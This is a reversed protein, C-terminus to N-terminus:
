SPGPPLLEDIGVGGAEDEVGGAVRDFVAVVFSCQPESGGVGQAARQPCPGAVSGGVSGREAFGEDVAVVPGFAAEVRDVRGGGVQEAPRVVGIVFGAPGLGGAVVEVTVQQLFSAADQGGGHEQGRQGARSRVPGVGEVLGVPLGDGALSEALVGVREQVRGGVGDAGSVVREGARGGDGGREVGVADPFGQVM